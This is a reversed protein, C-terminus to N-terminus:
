LLNIVERAMSEMQSEALNQHVPLTLIEQRLANALPFDSVNLVEPSLDPWSYAPIGKRNLLVM